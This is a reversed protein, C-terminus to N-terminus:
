LESLRSSIHILGDSISPFIQLLLLVQKLLLVMCCLCCRMKAQKEYIVFGRAKLGGTQAMDMTVFFTVVGGGVGDWDVPFIRPSFAISGSTLTNVCDLPFNAPTVDKNNIQVRFIGTIAEGSTMTAGAVAYCGIGIIRSATTPLDVSGINTEVTDGTATLPTVDCTIPM